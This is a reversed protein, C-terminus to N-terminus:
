EIGAKQINVLSTLVCFWIHILLFRDSHLRFLFNGWYVRSNRKVEDGEVPVEERTPTNMVFMVYGNDM